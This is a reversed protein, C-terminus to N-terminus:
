WWNQVVICSQVISSVELIKRQRDVKNGGCSRCRDKEIFLEGEGRCMDCRSQFQQVISLGLRQFRIQVGTGECYECKRVSGEKGGIGNCDSCIIDRQVALKTTKGNYLDELTV